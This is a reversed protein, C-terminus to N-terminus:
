EGVVVMLVEVSDSDIGSSVSDGGSDNGIMVLKVSCCCWESDKM